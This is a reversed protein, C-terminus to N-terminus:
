VCVYVCSYVCTCEKVWRDTFSSERQSSTPLPIQKGFPHFELACTVCESLAARQLGGKGGGGWYQPVGLPIGVSKVTGSGSRSLEDPTKEASIM